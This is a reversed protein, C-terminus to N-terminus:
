TKPKPKTKKIQAAKPQISAPVAPQVPSQQPTPAYRGHKHIRDSLDQRQWHNMGSHFLGM